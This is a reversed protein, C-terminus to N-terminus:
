LMGWFIMKLLWCSSCNPSLLSVRLRIAHVKPFTTFCNASVLFRSSPVNALDTFFTVCVSLHSLFNNIYAFTALKMALAVRCSPWPCSTTSISRAPHHSNFQVYDPAVRCCPWRLITACIKSGIQQLPFENDCDPREFLGNCHCTFRVLPSCRFLAFSFLPM